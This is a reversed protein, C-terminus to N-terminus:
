RWVFKKTKFTCLNKRIGIKAIKKSDTSLLIMDIKKQNKLRMLQGLSSPKKGLKKLNKNKLGKSGSRALIVAM